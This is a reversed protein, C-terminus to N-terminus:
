GFCRGIVYLVALVVLLRPLGRLFVIVGYALLIGGAVALIM